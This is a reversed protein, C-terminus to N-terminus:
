WRKELVLLGSVTEGCPRWGARRFCRGPDRKRRIKEPNVYTYFREAAPWRRRAWGEADLILGSSRSVSENRFVACCVGDALRCKDIYRRWVLLADVMATLLVLHEGPGVFKKPDRGDAYRRYSYHRRFLARGDPDGDAAQIWASGPFALRQQITVSVRAEGADAM